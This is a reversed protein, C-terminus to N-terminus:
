LNELFDAVDDDPFIIKKKNENHKWQTSSWHDGRCFEIRKTEVDICYDSSTLCTIGSCCGIFLDCLNYLKANSVFSGSYHVINHKKFKKLYIDIEKPPNKGTFIVNINEKFNELIKTIHSHDLYSQHSYYEYEILITKRKQLNSYFDQAEKEEDKSLRIIPVFDCLWKDIGSCEDRIISLLDSRPTGNYKEAMYPASYIIKAAKAFSTNILKQSILTLKMNNLGNNRDFCYIKDIFENNKLVSTYKSRTVYTVRFGSMSYHKVIPTSNIIDGFAGLNVIVIEQKDM